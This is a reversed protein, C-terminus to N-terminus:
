YSYIWPSPFGERDTMNDLHIFRGDGKQQVGIRNFLGSKAVAVIFEHAESGKVAIDVARGYTHAGRRAKRAEIPHEPCRYGSTVKMPKDYYERLETLKAMFEPNMGDKGCHQCRMEDHTFYPSEWSM